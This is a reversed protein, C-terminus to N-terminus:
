FAFHLVSFFVEQPDPIATVNVILPPTTDQITFSGSESNWNNSTDNAWITFTYLGLIDYTQICYYKSDTANFLLSFNGIPVGLPDDVQVWTGALQYNDTINASINVSYYVEQTDPITTMDLILPPTTDQISFSGSANAWNNSTDNAWITFTYIGLMDFSQIWYYKGNIPDYQMTLNGVFGGQPDYIEVCAGFVQLDDTINASINVDGYVEQPDPIATVNSIIPTTENFTITYTGFGGGENTIVLLHDGSSMATFSISEDVGLGVGESSAMADNRGGTTNFLFMDLDATIPVDLNITYEVGGIFGTIEFADLVENFPSLRKWPVNAYGIKYSTGDNGIYWMHYTFGDYYVTSPYTSTDDFSGPSGVNIIPNGPYRQWNIGDTSTAYGTKVVSGNGGGYWMQYNSGDFLVTASMCFTDEWSGASGLDVVPNGPHKTWSLGDPSTAYGIRHNSGDYGHYWMQYTTGNKIVTSPHISDDDWLGTTGIDIIPNASYKNWTLGDTSNAYGIRRTTTGDDGAYWMHYIGGDFLVVPELVQKDDWSGPSGLSLVPNSPYKNWNIGDTSNAYGIKWEFNYYGGYWMHYINGDFMISPSRVHESEWSGGPGVDLVPNGSFKEWNDIEPITAYGIRTRSGDEGAYWMVVKGGDELISPSHVHLDDWTTAPGLNLVPNAPSKHWNIGNTSTAYGIRYTSGDHGIYSMFYMSGNIILSPGFVRNDDWTGGPGPSLIPNSPHRLWSEGDGSTAYGIRYNAGDYGSYWMHFIAGDFRVFPAYVRSDDWEGGGGLDLVPNSPSKAWTIGDPSTAYGIRFNFSGSGNYGVYWMHYTGNSYLVTPSYARQDDWQGGGGIDLVPNGGYKTWTLGDPSTAYGIRFINNGTSGTYWMRYMGNEYIVSPHSVYADDWEGSTGVDLVPNGPMADMSGGWSDFVPHSDIQNEMEIVFDRAGLTVKAGRNPPGTWADKYLSVFDVTNGAFNSSDIMVNYTNDTYIELDNNSGADPRIGVVAYEGGHVEFEYDDQVPSDDLVPDDHALLMQASGTHESDMIIILASALFIFAIIVARVKMKM